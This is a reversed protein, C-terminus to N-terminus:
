ILTMQVIKKELYSILVKRASCLVCQAPFVFTCIIGEHPFAAILQPHWGKYFTISNLFFHIDRIRVVSCQWDTKANGFGLHWAQKRTETLYWLRMESTNFSQTKKLQDPAIQALLTSEFQLKFAKRCYNLQHLSKIWTVYGMLRAKM